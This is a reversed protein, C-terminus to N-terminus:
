KDDPPFNEVDKSKPFLPYQNSKSIDCRLLNKRGKGEDMKKLIVKTAIIGIGYTIEVFYTKGAELNATLRCENTGPPTCILVHEGPDLITYLYTGVKVWGMQFEDVDMRYPIVWDGM